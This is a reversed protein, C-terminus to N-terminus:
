HTGYETTTESGQARTRTRIGDMCMYGDCNQGRDRDSPDNVKWAAYEGSAAAPTPEHRSAHLARICHGSEIAVCANMQMLHTNLPSTPCAPPTTHMHMGMHTMIAEKKHIREYTTYLVRDRRFESTLGSDAKSTSLLPVVPSGLTIFVKKVKEAVYYKKEKRKAAAQM